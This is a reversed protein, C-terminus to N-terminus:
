VEPQALPSSPSTASRQELEGVTVRGGIAPPLGGTTTWCSQDFTFWAHMAIPIAPSGPVTTFTVGPVVTVAVRSLESGERNVIEVVVGAGPTVMVTLAFLALRCNAVSVRVAAGVAVPFLKPPCTL